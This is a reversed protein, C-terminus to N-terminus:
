KVLSLLIDHNTLPPCILDIIQPLRLSHYIISRRSVSLDRYKAAVSHLLQTVMWDGLKSKLSYIWSALHAIQWKWSLAIKLLVFAHNWIRRLQINNAALDNSSMSYSCVMIQPCNNAPWTTPERGIFLFLLKCRITFLTIGPLIAVVVEKLCHFSTIGCRASIYQLYPVTLKSKHVDCM